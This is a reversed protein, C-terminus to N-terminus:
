GRKKKVIGWALAGWGLIFLLGGIPTMPGSFWPDFPLLERTASLYLSGCFFLLGLGMLRYIWPKTRSSIKRSSWVLLLVMLHFAQYFFGIEFREYAEPSIKPRLQHAGAAGLIVTSAGLLSLIVGHFKDKRYMHDLEIKRYEHVSRVLRFM